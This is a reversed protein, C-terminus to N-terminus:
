QKKIDVLDNRSQIQELNQRDEKSLKSPIDYDIIIYMNPHYGNQSPVGDGILTIQKGNETCEDIKIKRTKGNPLKITQTSGLLCDYYPVKLKYYVNGNDDIVYKSSDLNYVFIAIFDGNEGKPDKSESGQNVYKLFQGEDVGIPIQINLSVKKQQFGTGECTPCSHEITKGTGNCYPCPSIQQSTMFGRRQTQVIMGTGNCHSCTHVGTGGQGHCTHCRVNINYSVTKNGGCYIEEIIVPIKMKISQGQPHANPNQQTNGFGFGNNHFFSGFGGGNFGGGFANKMFEEASSFGNFGGEGFGEMSGFQDYHAKKEPNSLTQYAENIEKFKDEAVKLKKPDDTKQKDPHYKLSLKRFAKKIEEPTATKSVGLVDYYNKQAM